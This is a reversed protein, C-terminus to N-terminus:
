NAMPKSTLSLIITQRQIHGKHCAPLRDSTDEADRAIGAVSTEERERQGWCSLSDFYSFLYVRFGGSASSKQRRM